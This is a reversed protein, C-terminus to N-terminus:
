MAGAIMAAPVIMREEHRPEQTSSWRAPLTGRADLRYCRGRSRQQGAVPAPFAPSRFRARLEKARAEAAIPSEGSIAAGLRPV